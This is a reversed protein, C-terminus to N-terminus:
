VLGLLVAEHVKAASRYFASLSRLSPMLYEDLVDAEDWILPYVQQRTMADADYRARLLGEDIHGWAEAIQRVDEPGLLRPPGYGVDEGTPQGGAVAWALPGDVTGGATLLFHVGDWAKDVDLLRGAGWGEGVEDALLQAALEGDSTVASFETPTLRRLV